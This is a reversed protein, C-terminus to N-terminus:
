AISLNYLFQFYLEVPIDAPYQEYCAILYECDEVATANRHFYMEPLNVCINERIVRIEFNDPDSAVAQDLLKLGRIVNASREVSDTQDRGLLCLTSGYYAGILNNDPFQLRLQEYLELAKRVSEKDGNIGKQYLIFATKSLKDWSLDESSSQKKPLSPGKLNM